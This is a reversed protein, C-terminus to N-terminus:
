GESIRLIKRALAGTETVAENARGVEHLGLREIEVGVYALTVEVRQRLRELDQGAAVIDRSLEDMFREIAASEARLDAESWREGDVIREGADPESSPADALVANM